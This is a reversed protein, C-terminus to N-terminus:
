KDVDPVYGGITIEIRPNEPEIVLSKLIHAEVVQSDDEWIIGTLSDCLIKNYNDFDRTRRDPFVLFIKISLLVDKKIVAGKYQERAQQQYSAKLKKGEASMYYVIFAKKSFKAHM